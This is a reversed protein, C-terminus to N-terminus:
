MIFPKRYDELVSNLKDVDVVEGLLGHKRHDWAFLSPLKHHDERKRNKLYLLALAPDDVTYFSIPKGEEKFSNLQFNRYLSAGDIPGTEEM